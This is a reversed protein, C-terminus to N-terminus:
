FANKTPKRITKVISLGELGGYVAGVDMDYMYLTNKGGSISHILM